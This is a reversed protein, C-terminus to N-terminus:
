QPYKVKDAPVWWKNLNRYAGLVDITADQFRNNVAVIEDMWYLFAYPQDEYIVAQLEKWIPAAKESDPEALGQRILEAVKPNEYSTFNFESGSGWMSTPDLLLAASWGSLAADYDRKRLREFFTNSEIQEIQMDVGIDKLAGQIIVAARSRRTNGSNTIMTFRFDQGDKDLWGDNNTDAWGLEGLRAKAADKGFPIRKIEDNHAGCLAPTITGIAPRGYVEGTTQSTLLDKILGDTDIAMALARRVERDGFLRNPKVGTAHEGAPLGESRAKYDDADISNWAVYDMSRWGRRHLQIEPHEAALKDADAVQVAEMLDVSGNELELLRTSYEPLVKIVVRRLKPKDEPPGTFNENPELVIRANKDWTALKWPGDVVPMQNDLPNGRLTSRDVTPTDLLHRPAPDAGSAHALMTVRDYAQTFVFEITHADVIRPRADPAMQRVYNAKASAVEPDAILDFGFRIDEATVPTQDQWTLGDRLHVRLTKGDESFEYSAYQGPKYELRCSFESDLLPYYLNSTLNNDFASNQVASLFDKADVQAAIVLTDRPFEGAAPGGADPPGGACGTPLIAAVLLLSSPAFLRVLRL